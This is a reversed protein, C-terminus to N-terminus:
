PRGWLARGRATHGAHDGGGYRGTSFLRRQTRHCVKFPSPTFDSVLVRMPEQVWEAFSSSLEFRYWGVAGTRPAEFEGNFAGFRNLTLDKVEHVTKGMPDVVKLQYGELPPPVFTDNDQNRVYLKYQVTDGARYVGQATTGWSHIHGYRQRMESWLTNGSARWTDVRFSGDLPLLAMDDKKEVRVFLHEKKMDWAELAELKPDIDLTGALMAVGHIDTVNHTLPVPSQPLKGYTDRYLCVTAGEVPQGTSLDTVWALTNYHGIKVHVQFPTVQAM